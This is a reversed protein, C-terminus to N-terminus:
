KIIMRAREVIHRPQSVLAAVADQMSRGTVPDVDLQMQAADRLTEPDKMMADFAERLEEVRSDRLGPPAVLPWALQTDTVLVRMVARDEETKALDLAFPVDSLEAIKQIGTQVVLRIKSEKVLNMSRAKIAGWAWGCFGDVEGREMALSIEMGGPYGSVIRFKTAALANLILPHNNTRSGPGVGGVTTDIQTLDAFNRARATHWLACLATEPARGGIWAFAQPDFKASQNGFMPEFVVAGGIVALVSGDRPALNFLHNAAALSGAGPMNQVVFQPNGSLFRGMHRAWLRATLDYAGGTTFGVIINISKLDQAIAWSMQAMTITCFVLIQIFRM